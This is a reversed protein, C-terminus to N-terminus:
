WNCVLTGPSPPNEECVSLNTDRYRVEYTTGPKLNTFIGKIRFTDNSYGGRHFIGGFIYVAKGFVDPDGAIHLTSGRQIVVCKSIWEGQPMKPRLQIQYANEDVGEDLTIQFRVVLYTNTEGPTVTPAKPQGYSIGQVGYTLLMVSFISVMIRRNVFLTKM